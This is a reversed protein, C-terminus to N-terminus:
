SFPLFAYQLMNTAICRYKSDRSKTELGQLLFDTQIISICIPKYRPDGLESLDDSVSISLVGVHKQFRRLVLNLHNHLYESTIMIKKSFCTALAVSKFYKKKHKGVLKVLNPLAVMNDIQLHM